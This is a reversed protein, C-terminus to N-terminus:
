RYSDPDEGPGVYRIFNSDDEASHVMDSAVLGVVTSQGDDEIVAFCALPFVFTQESHNSDEYMAQWGVAPIIQTIKM